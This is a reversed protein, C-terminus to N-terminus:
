VSQKMTSEGPIDQLEGTWRLIEDYRESFWWAIHEGISFVRYESDSTTEATSPAFNVATVIQRDRCRSMEFYIHTIAPGNGDYICSSQSACSTHWQGLVSTGGGIYHIMLGTCRNKVRCMDVRELGDLVAFSLFLGANPTGIPPSPFGCNHYQPQLPAAGPATGDGIVGLRMITMGSKVNEYYLGAIYGEHRLLIWKYGNGIVMSPLIYSGFTHLRGRTTEIVLAPAAFASSPSNVVRLWVYAIREDPFLSFHLACGSRHGSLRSVCTFHVELGVIGRGSIYVSLGRTYENKFYLSLYRFFRREASIPVSRIIDRDFDFLAADPDLLTCPFNPQDWVVQKKSCPEALSIATYNLDSYGYRVTSVAGRIIGHWVCDVSPIKGIWDSEWDIGLFQIACLGGLSTIYKLGTADRISWRNGESDGDVILDQIYETGFVSVMNASLYPRQHLIIGRSPPSRLHGVLRSTEGRVLLFASYPTMLGTYGWIYIRLEAPLRSLFIPQEEHCAVM